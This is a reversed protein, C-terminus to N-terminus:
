ISRENKRLNQFNPNIVFCGADAARSRWTWSCKDRWTDRKALGRAPRHILPFYQQICIACAGGIVLIAISGGTNGSEYAARSIYLVLAILPILLLGTLLTQWIPELAPQGCCPAPQSIGTLNYVAEKELASGCWPCQRSM